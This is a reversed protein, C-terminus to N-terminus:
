LEDNAARQISELTQLYLSVITDIEKETEAECIIRCRTKAHSQLDKVIAINLSDKQTESNDCERCLYFTKDPNGVTFYHPNSTDPYDKRIACLLRKGKTKFIYM